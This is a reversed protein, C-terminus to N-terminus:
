CVCELELALPEIKVSYSSSGCGVGEDVGREGRQMARGVGVGRGIWESVSYFSVAFSLFDIFGWGWFSDKSFGRQFARVCSRIRASGDGAGFQALRWTNRCKNASYRPNESPDKRFPASPCGLCPRSGPWRQRQASVAAGARTGRQSNWRSGAPVSARSVRRSLSPPLQFSFRTGLDSPLFPM